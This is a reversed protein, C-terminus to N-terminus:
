NIKSYLDVYEHIVKDWFYKQRINKINEILINKQADLKNIVNYIEPLHDFQIELGIANKNVFKSTESPSLAIVPIGFQLAQLLVGSLGKFSKDHAILVYDSACFYNGVESEAIYKDEIIIKETLQKKEIIDRLDNSLWNEGAILLKTDVDLHGAIEIANEIGKDPRLVGFFLIIKKSSDLGIKKRLEAKSELCTQNTIGLGIVKIKKNDIGISKAEDALTETHVLVFSSISKLILNAFYRQLRTLIFNGTRVREVDKLTLIIKQRLSFLNIFLPLTSIIGWIHIIDPTKRNIFKRVESYFKKQFTFDKKKNGSVPKECKLLNIVSCNGPFELSEKFGFPTLIMIEKAFGSLSSCFNQLEATYHGALHAKPEVIFITKNNLSNAM